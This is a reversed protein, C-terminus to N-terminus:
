MGPMAYICVLGFCFFEWLSSHVHNTASSHTACRSLFLSFVDGKEKQQVKTRHFCFPNVLGLEYLNMYESFAVFNQLIEVEIKVTLLVIMLLTSIECFKTAKDSYIFKSKSSIKSYLIMLLTFCPLTLAWNNYFTEIEYKQWGTTGCHSLFFYIDWAISLIYLLLLTYHHFYQM